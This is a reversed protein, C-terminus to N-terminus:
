FYKKVLYIYPFRKVNTILETNYYALTNTVTLRKWGIRTNAPLNLSNLGMFLKIFCAWALKQSVRRGKGFTKM